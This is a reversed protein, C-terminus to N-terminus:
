PPRHHDDDDTSAHPLHLLCGNDDIGDADADDFWTGGSGLYRFRVDATGAVTVVAERTGDPRPTFVDIGPTWDNFTGVVSVAGEHLHDSIVFRIETEGPTASRHVQISM